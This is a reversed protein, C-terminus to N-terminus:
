RAVFVKRQLGSPTVFINVKGVQPASHMVGDLTYIRIGDIRSMKEVDMDNFDSEGYVFVVGSDKAQALLADILTQFRATDVNYDFTGAESVAELAALADEETQALFDQVAQLETDISCEGYEEEVKALTEELTSRMGDIQEMVSEYAAENDAVRKAEAEAAAKDAEYKEQKEKAASKLSDVLSDFESRDLSYSYTGALEVDELAKRAEANIKDICDKVAQIEAAVDANPYDTKIEGEADELENMLVIIDDIVAKYAAENDAIRKAEAEAAAKDAEFKEQKEKAAARLSALLSDFETRDLSYSYTGALEVDELAKRAETNIKDICDKVAQVEATVDADPYDTKIEGETEELEDMLVIIYDIVAKYAAENDAVRKAEAEAKEKEEKQTKATSWLAALLADFSERDLTYSFVGEPAVAEFAAKSDTEAKAIFEEAAKVENALDADPYEAIVEGKTKELEPALAAIETVVADYAAQNDAVRKAEAVAADHKEQQSKASDLLEAMKLDFTSRDWVWGYESCGDKSLGWFDHCNDEVVDLLTQVAQIEATVDADPYEAAIKKKAEEFEESAAKIKALNAEYAKRNEERQALIESSYAVTERVTVFGYQKVGDAYDIHRWGSEGKLRCELFIKYEGDPVGELVAAPFYFFYFCTLGYENIEHFQTLPYLREGTETNELVVAAEATLGGYHSRMALNTEIGRVRGESGDEYGIYTFMECTIQVSVESNVNPQINYIIEGGYNYGTDEFSFYGDNYGGYGFNFHYLGTEDVGDIIMCHGGSMGRGTYVVPREERLDTLICDNWMDANTERRSVTNLSRDLDFYDFLMYPYISATSVGPGYNMNIMYGCDRMLRAVEDAGSEDGNSWYYNDQMSDFDYPVEGVECSLTQGKWEYSITARKPQMRHYKALQALVTASCGTLCRFGNHEPCLRNYPDDQSWQTKMLPEIPTVGRTAYLAGKGQTRAIDATKVYDELLSLLGSPLNDPDFVDKESYGLVRRPTESEGSVITFGQGGPGAFVYVSPSSPDGGVWLPDDSDARTLPAHFKQSFFRSAESAAESLTVQRATMVSPAVAIAATMMFVHFRNM